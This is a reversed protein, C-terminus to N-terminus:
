NASGNSGPEGQQVPKIDLQVTSRTGFVHGIERVAVKLAEEPSTTQQIRQSIASIAAERDARRQTEAYARANQLGVAVQNAVSQLLDADEQKLGGVQNQQVDLVGLVKEGLIIPVAVESKTEPLLPNSLWGEAQTVDSVLVPVGTEAARGVLGRGRPLKHGRALMVRGAEGTGGSMVLNAQEPDYLYIHVHYYDFARQLQNVVETVLQDPDLITSLRRSVEASTVLAKTRDSVRQELGTVLSNLQSAMQNFTGALAGIEDRSRVTARATLDGAAAQRAAATLTAIPQALYRALLGGIIVSIIAAIVGVVLNGRQQEVVPALLATKSQAVVVRWPRTHMSVANAQEDTAAAAGSAPHFDGEFGTGLKEAALNAALSPLEAVLDDRSGAPLALNEQLAAIEADTLPVISHFLLQPEQTHVLLIDENSVLMVFSDSNSTEGQGLVLRQLIKADYRVRLVGLFDGVESRIPASFYLSTEGTVPSNRVDSIYPLGSDRPQAFYERSKKDLGVEEVSTDAIAIGNQDFVAYSTIYIPDRQKFAALINNTSDLVESGPRQEAPLELLEVIDGIQAETRLSDLNYQIFADLRAAVQAAESALSQNADDVLARQSSLTSAYGVVSMPVIAMILVVIVLKTILPLSNFQTALLGGFIMVLVVAMISAVSADSSVVGMRYFPWALDVVMILAAVGISSWILMQSGREDQTQTAIVVTVLMVAAAGIFGYGQTAMPIILMGIFTGIAIVQGGVKVRRNFMLISGVLSAVGVLPPVAVTVVQYSSLRTLDPLLAVNSIILMIAFVIGLWFARRAPVPMELYKQKISNM